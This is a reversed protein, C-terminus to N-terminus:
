EFKENHNTLSILPLFLVKGSSLLPENMPAWSDKLECNRTRDKSGPVINMPQSFFLFPVTIHFKSVIKREGKQLRLV